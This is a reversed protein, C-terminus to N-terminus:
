LCNAVPEGEPAVSGHCDATSSTAEQKLLGLPGELSVSVDWCDKKNIQGKVQRSSVPRRQEQTQLSLPPHRRGCWRAGGVRGQGNRAFRWLHGALEYCDPPQAKLKSPM